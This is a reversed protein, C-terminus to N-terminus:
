VSYIKIDGKEIKNLDSMAKVIKVKGIAIGPSAAQGTLIPTGSIEKQEEKNVRTQLTTIPRTQVICINQGEIAFEIDQPKNYHEELKIAIEALQVIEYDTLVQKKAYEEKLNIIAEKGEPNRTIAIKKTNVQKTKIELDRSVIYHDPTIKGSVIGEGLGWVSEVTIDDNNYSPDRSFIVGSKDSNIMKQIVVALSVKEQDFKQKNRYYTARSTFLSAFCKKVNIILEQNGRVNVFTDQQGAFSAEALDEATASSRVAVFLPESTKNLIELPTLNKSDVSSTNLTEYNDIIEQELDKPFNSNIILDRIRQTIEDLQKTNEYDIGSLLSMIKPKIGARQIFYQYAQATVVFGSPVNIGLNYIEALNAGKGGAQAKSDKNLESFWKIFDDSNFDSEEM